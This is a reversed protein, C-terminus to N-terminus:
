QLNLRHKSIGAKTSLLFVTVDDEEHFQDIMDQREDVKTQGDLRMYQIGLSDLVKELIDLMMTFFSFLLVRDGRAKMKPLLRKLVDIKGAQMWEEKNLAFRSISNNELCLRHLTFDWMYSMDERIVEQSHEPTGFKEEKMIEKSMTKIKQDNYIRRFLLPHSAAKRLQMLVNNGDRVSPLEGRARAAIQDKQKQLIEDYILRQEPHMECCEIQHHKKPLDKLVHIKRRRLVFPTMMTKARTIRQQSLLAASAGVSASSPKLKFISKL